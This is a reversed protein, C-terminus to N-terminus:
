GCRPSPPDDGAPQTEGAPGAPDGVATDPDPTRPSSTGPPPTPRRALTRQEYDVLAQELDWVLRWDEPSLADSAPGTVSLTVWGGSALDVRRMLRLPATQHNSSPM